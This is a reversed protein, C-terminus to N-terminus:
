MEVKLRRAMGWARVGQKELKRCHLLHVHFHNFADSELGIEAVTEGETEGETELEIEAEIEEAGVAVGGVVSGVEERVPKGESEM